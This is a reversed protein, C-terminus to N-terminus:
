IFCSLYCHYFMTLIYLCSISKKKKLFPHNEGNQLVCHWLSIFYYWTSFLSKVFFTVVIMKFSYYCRMMYVRGRIKIDNRKSRVCRFLVDWCLRLLGRCWHFCVARKWCSWQIVGLGLWWRGARSQLCLNKQVATFGAVCTGRKYKLDM